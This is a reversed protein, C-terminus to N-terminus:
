SGKQGVLTMSLMCPVQIVRAVPFVDDHDDDDDDDVRAVPLSALKYRSDDTIVPQKSSDGILSKNITNCPYKGSGPWTEGDIRAVENTRSERSRRNM